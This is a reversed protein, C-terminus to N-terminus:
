GGMDVWTPYYRRQGIVDTEGASAADDCFPAANHQAFHGQDVVLKWAGRPEVSLHRDSIKLNSGVKKLFERKEKDSGIATLLETSKVDSIFRITPELWTEQSTALIALRDKLEQKEEVLQQKAVRYEELSLTKDLYAHMLRELKEDNATLHKRTSGGADQRAAADHKQEEALESLMADTWDSPLVFRRLYATVQEGVSEQRVYKQSCPGRKKTCRLYVFGKQIENTFLGGCENCRFIGRYIYTKPSEPKPRSKGKMVEQVADFVSKPVMSEHKGEHDEGGFRIIGCYIPNQLMRHFQARSLPNGHRCILGLDTISATLRDITYIGTAYLEFAKRVLPARLPDLFITRTARDNLYGIPAVMPWIGNKVKQRHGRKINEALNDVYYKSQSFMISLMFKGAPTPEFVFTPFKLGTVKGTDVLYIIRGGDLSNRALRDPHWALIGSAEGQEIRQLMSNFIPRGPIKATQKEIFIEVVSIGERRALDRLEAIQDDISRVQRSLDDTSKRAYIFFKNKEM